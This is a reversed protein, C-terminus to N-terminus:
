FATGHRESSSTTKKDSIERGAIETFSLLILFSVLIKMRAYRSFGAEMVVHEEVDWYFIEKFLTSGLLSQLVYEKVFISSIEMKSLQM